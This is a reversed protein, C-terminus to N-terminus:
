LDGMWPDMKWSVRAGSVGKELEINSHMDGVATVRPWEHHEPWCELPFKNVKLM